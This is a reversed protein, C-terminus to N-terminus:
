GSRAAAAKFLAVTKQNRTDSIGNRHCQAACTNWDKNLAAAHLRPFSNVLGHVGLNFAMDLLADQAEAPYTDYNNFNARVGNEMAAIDSQLLAEIDALAMELQTFQQYERAELARQQRAINNFEAVIEQVTAPTLTARTLLRILQAETVAPVMHGVGVTVRGVTDLYMHPVSGENDMLM